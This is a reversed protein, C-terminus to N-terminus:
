PTFSFVATPDTVASQVKGLFTLAGDKEYRYFFTYPALIDEEWSSYNMQFAIEVMDDETDADYLFCKTWCFIYDDDSFQESLTEHEAAYDAGDIIFHLSTNSSGPSDIFFRIEEEQGDRNLDFSCVEETQLLITEAGIYDYKEKFGMCELDTYPVTFEIKGAYGGGLEYPNSFFILGSTSLYWRADQYLVQEFDDVADGWMINQYAAATALNQQFALTDKRFTDTNESLDSFDILEGSLTDYNLGIYTDMGHAGGAYTDATVLFSIVSCDARAATFTLEDTYTFFPWSSDDSAEDSRFDYELEAIELLSNDASFSDVRAQIDANIKDAASENEEITVVPYVCTNTYLVTGDEAKMSQEKTYFTLSVPSTRTTREVTLNNDPTHTEQIDQMDFTVTTDLIRSLRTDSLEDLLTLAHLGDKKGSFPINTNACATCLCLLILFSIIKRKM